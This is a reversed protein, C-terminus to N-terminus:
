DGPYLHLAQDYIRYVDPKHEPFSDWLAASLVFISGPALKSLNGPAGLELLVPLDSDAIAQRMRQREPDADLDMALFFLNEAKESRAGHVKRRVRGRDDLALAVEEAIDRERIRKLAPLLDAGELDVGYDHFAQTFA